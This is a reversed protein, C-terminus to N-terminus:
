NVTALLQYLQYFFLTYTLHRVYVITFLLYGLYRTLVM